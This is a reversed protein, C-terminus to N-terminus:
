SDPEESICIQPLLKKMGQVRHLSLVISTLESLIINLSKVKDDDFKSIQEALTDALIKKQDEDQDEEDEGSCLKLKIYKLEEELFNNTISMGMEVDNDKSYKATGYKTQDTKINAIQVLSQKVSM